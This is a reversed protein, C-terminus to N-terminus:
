YIQRTLPLDATPSLALAYISRSIRFLALPMRGQNRDRWPSDVWYVFTILFPLYRPKVPVGVHTLNFSFSNAKISLPKYIRPWLKFKPNAWNKNWKVPNLNINFGLSCFMAHNIDWHISFTWCIDICLKTFKKNSFQSKRIVIMTLDLVMFYDNIRTVLLLKKFSYKNIDMNERELIRFEKGIKKLNSVVM